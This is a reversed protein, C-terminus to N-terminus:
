RIGFYWIAGLGAVLAFWGWIPIGAGFRNSSARNRLWFDREISWAIAVVEALPQTADAPDECEALYWLLQAKLEDPRNPEGTREILVRNAESRICYPEGNPGYAAPNVWDVVDIAALASQAAMVSPFVLLPHGTAVFVAGPPVALSEFSFDKGKSVRKSV